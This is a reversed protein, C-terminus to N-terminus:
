GRKNCYWRPPVLKEDALPDRGDPNQYIMKLIKFIDKASCLQTPANGIYGDTIIGHYRFPMEFKSFRLSVDGYRSEDFWRMYRELVEGSALKVGFRYKEETMRDPVTLIEEVTHIFTNKNQGVGVLLIHGREGLLKGYCGEPATPSDLNLEDKAFDLARERDGFIVM